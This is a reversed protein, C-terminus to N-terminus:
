SSFVEPLRKSIRLGSYLMAWSFRLSWSFSPALSGSVARLFVTLEKQWAVACDAQQFDRAERAPSGRASQGARATDGATQSATRVICAAWSAAKGRCAAGPARRGYRRWEARWGGSARARTAAAARRGQNKVLITIRRNSPDYPNSKVRLMQDAFGRVQTVQDGRM